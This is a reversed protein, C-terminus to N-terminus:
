LPSSPSSHAFQLSPIILHNHYYSPWIPFKATVGPNVGGVRVILAMPDKIVESLWSVRKVDRRFSPVRCLAIDGIVASLFSHRRSARWCWKWCCRTEWGPVSWSWGQTAESALWCHFAPQYAAPLLWITKLQLHKYCLYQNIIIETLIKIFM